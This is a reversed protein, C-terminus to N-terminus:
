VVGTLQYRTQLRVNVLVPCMFVSETAAVSFAYACLDSRKHIAPHACINYKSCFILRQRASNEYDRVIGVM